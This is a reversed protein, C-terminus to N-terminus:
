IIGSDKLLTHASESSYVNPVFNFTNQLTSIVSNDIDVLLQVDGNETLIKAPDRELLLNSFTKNKIIKKKSNVFVISKKPIDVVLWDAESGNKKLFNRIEEVKDHAKKIIKENTTTDDQNLIRQRFEDLRITKPSKEFLLSHAIDKM